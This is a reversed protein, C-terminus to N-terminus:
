KLLKKYTPRATWTLPSRALLLLWNFLGGCLWDYHTVDEIFALGQALRAPRAFRTGAGSSLSHAISSSEVVEVLKM